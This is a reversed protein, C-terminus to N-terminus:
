LSLSKIYISVGIHIQAKYGLTKSGSYLKGYRSGMTVTALYFTVLRHHHNGSLFFAKIHKEM